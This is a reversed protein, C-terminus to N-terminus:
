VGANSLIQAATHFASALAPFQETLEVEAQRLRDQLSDHEDQTTATQEDLYSDIQDLLDQMRARTAPDEDDLAAIEARLRRLSEHASEEQSM